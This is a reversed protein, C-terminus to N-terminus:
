LYRLYLYIWPYSFIWLNIWLNKQGHVFYPWIKLFAIAVVCLRNRYTNVPIIQNLNKFIIIITSGGSENPIIIGSICKIIMINKPHIRKSRRALARHECVYPLAPWTLILIRGSRGPRYANKSVLPVTTSKLKPLAATARTRTHSARAGQAQGAGAWQALESQLAKPSFEKLANWWIFGQTLGDCIQSSWLM